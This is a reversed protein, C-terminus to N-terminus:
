HDHTKTCHCHGQAEANQKWESGDEYFEHKWIPVHAKLEDIGYTCAEMAERRHVSSVVIAVSAEKVPVVGIRHVFVIHVLEWKTRMKAVIKHMEKIAMSEYAEYELRLVKKGNYHDRTTGLFVSVAGATDDSAMDVWKQLEIPADTIEVHEILENKSM